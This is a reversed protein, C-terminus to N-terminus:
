EGSDPWPVVGLRNDIMYRAGAREDRFTADGESLRDRVSELAVIAADISFRERGPVPSDLVFRDFRDDDGLACFKVVARELARHREAFTGSFPARRTPKASSADSPEPRPPYKKGDMGTIVAAPESPRDQNKESTPTEGHSVKALDRSVTDKSVGTAAAIARLSMGEGSMLQVAQQRDLGLLGITGALVDAVYAPWSPHGLVEHIQGTQAERLLGIVKDVGSEVSKAAWRLKNDLKRAADLDMPVVLEADVITPIEAPASM